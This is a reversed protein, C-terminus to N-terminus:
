CRLRSRVLERYQDCYTRAPPSTEVQAIVNEIRRKSDDIQTDLVEKLDNEMTEVDTSVGQKRRAGIQARLRKRM